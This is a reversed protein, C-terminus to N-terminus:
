VEEIDFTPFLKTLQLRSDLSDKVYMNKASESKWRGHLMLLRDSSGSKALNNAIFTAGGSRLSHTSYSVSNIGIALLSEKVLERCRTYSLRRPGLTYSGDKRHPQLTRFIYASSNLDISAASFYRSLLSHPCTVGGSKAIFVKNGQRFQDTKSSRVNIELHDDHVLIDSAQLDLLENIRFLGNFGLVFLLATRLGSLNSGEHAFKVCIRRIMDPTIPEKKNVPRSFMRKSAQVLNHNLATDVPNGQAGHPILDHVWKLACFASLVVAYSRKTENLYSLYESVLLSDCPLVLIVGKSKLYVSFCRYQSVYKKVSSNAKSSLLQEVM